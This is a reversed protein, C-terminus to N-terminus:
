GNSDIQLGRWTDAELQLSFYEGTGLRIPAGGGLLSSLESVGPNHAVLLLHAHAGSVERIVLLLQSETANYLRPEFTIRTRTSELADCLLQATQRTRQASSAIVLDPVLGAELLKKGTAAAELLGRTTLPRSFDSGNYNTWDANAHRM